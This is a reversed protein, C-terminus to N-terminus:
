PELGQPRVRFTPRPRRASAQGSPTPTSPPETPASAVETAEWLARDFPTSPRRSLKPDAHVEATARWERVLQALPAYSDLETAAAVVRSFEEVFALRDASPLVELWAFSDVLAEGLAKPSHVALNRLTRGVAAFAIAREADRDARSLRLDPQDRRRLMVDGEEVDSTVDKPHRLLDSFPRETVRM